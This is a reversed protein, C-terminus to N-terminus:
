SLAVIINVIVSITLAVALVILWPTLPNPEAPPPLDLQTEDSAGGEALGTLVADSLYRRAQLPPRGQQLAELDVILDTVSGYRREREKALMVEVVEGMGQSLDPNIHDPPVLPEKLHKHMVAAPTTAEFPVRRAVVHYLTAGLSYVDARADIDVEGRIQEPSIYYPTGYARGAEAQATQVDTTM